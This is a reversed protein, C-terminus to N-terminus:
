LEINIMTVRQHGRIRYLNLAFWGFLNLSLNFGNQRVDISPMSVAKPLNSHPKMKMSTVLNQKNLDKDVIMVGINSTPISDVGPSVIVVDINGHPVTKERANLPAELMMVSNPLLFMYM